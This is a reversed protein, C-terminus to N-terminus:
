LLMTRLYSSNYESLNKWFHKIFGKPINRSIHIPLSGVLNNEPNKQTPTLWLGSSLINAMCM